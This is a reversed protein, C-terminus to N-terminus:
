YHQAYVVTPEKNLKSSVEMVDVIETADEFLDTELLVKVEADLSCKYLADILEQVKM